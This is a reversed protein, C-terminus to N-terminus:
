LQSRAKAGRILSLVNSSRVIFALLLVGAMTFWQVAYGTHKAPSQNVVSWSASFAAPDEPAIRVLVPLVPEGFQRSLSQAFNAADYDQVVGPLDAPVTQEELLYASSTPIYVRGALRVEGPMLNPEPISRRASDGSIWGLNVPVRGENTKVLAVVEYGFRGNNIRNDVLVYQTPNLQGVVSVKRDAFTLWESKSGSLQSQSEFLQTHSLAVMDLRQANRLALVRKEEARDLQWFGLYLLGPFLLLTFVTLRWEFLLELPGLNIHHLRATM